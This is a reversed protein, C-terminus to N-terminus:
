PDPPPDPPDPLPPLRRQDLNWLRFRPNELPPLNIKLREFEEPRPTVGVSSVVAGTESKAYSLPEGTYPDLPVAPLFAPLLEALSDPWRDHKQRFRECAIGVVACRATATYRWSKEALNKTPGLLLGSLVKFEEPEPLRMARFPVIQEHVPRKALEVCQTMWSLAFARDAPLWGRYHWWALRDKLGDSGLPEPKFSDRTAVGTQLNDFLQDLAAREGRFGYLLLPEEADAALAVQLESLGPLDGSQALAREIDTLTVNRVSWRILQSHLLPEDGISRSANLSALLGDTVRNRDGDELALVVDWRLLNSVTRTFYTDERDLNYFNPPLVFDRRGHPLTKLTRALRIAEASADLDRRIKSIVSASYRHNPPIETKSQWQKDSTGEQKIWDPHTVAKIRPILDAANQGPPVKQRGANVREWTWNPDTREAEAVASALERNGKARVAERWALKYGVFGLVGM